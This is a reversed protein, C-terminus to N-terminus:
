CATAQCRVTPAPSSRCAADFLAKVMAESERVRRKATAADTDNKVSRYNAAAGATRARLGPEFSELTTEPAHGAIREV